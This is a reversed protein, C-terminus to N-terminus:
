GELEQEMRSIEDTIDAETHSADQLVDDTIAGILRVAGAYENAAEAGAAAIFGILATAAGGDAASPMGTLAGDLEGVLDLVEGMRRTVNDSDLYIPDSM